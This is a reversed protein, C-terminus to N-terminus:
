EIGKLRAMLAIDLLKVIYEPPTTIGKKWQFMTTNPIGYLRNLEAMSVKYKDLLEKFTM